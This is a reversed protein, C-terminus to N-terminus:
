RQESRIKEAEKEVAVKDGRRQWAFVDLFNLLVGIGWGGIVVFVM